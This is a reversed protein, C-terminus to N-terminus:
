GFLWRGAVASEAFMRVTLPLRKKEVEKKRLSLKKLLPTNEWPFYLSWDVCDLNVNFKQQYKELADALDDRPHDFLDSDLELPIEKWHSDLYGPIEERFLALVDDTISEM